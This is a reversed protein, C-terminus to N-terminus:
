KKMWERFLLSRSFKDVVKINKEMDISKEVNLDVTQNAEGNM